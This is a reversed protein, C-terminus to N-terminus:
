RELVVPVEEINGGAIRFTRLTPDGGALSVIVYLWDPEAAQRVDSDSPWAETHTHSHYVGILELGKSEADRLAKILDRSDVTYTRASADGNRCRYVAEVRGEPITTGPRLRGALLGCAEEPLGDYCHGLIALYHAQSLRLPPGVLPSV